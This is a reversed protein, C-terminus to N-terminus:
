FETALNSNLFCVLMNCTLYFSTLLYQQELYIIRLWALLFLIKSDLNSILILKLSGCMLRISFIVMAEDVELSLVLINLFIFECKLFLVQGCARHSLLAM